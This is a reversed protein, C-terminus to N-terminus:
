GRPSLPRQTEVDSTRAPKESAALHYGFTHIDLRSPSGVATWQYEPPLNSLNPPRYSPHMAAIRTDPRGPATGLFVQSRWEASSVSFGGAAIEAATVTPHKVSFEAGPGWPSVPPETLAAIFARRQADSMGAVPVVVGALAADRRPRDLAAWFRLHRRKGYFWYGGAPPAIWTDDLYWGWHISMGLTQLDTLAAALEADHDLPFAGPRAAREVWPRVIREPVEMPRDWHAYRSRLRVVGYERRWTYHLETALRDLLAAAPQKGSVWAPNVRSRAFSDAVVDLGTAEHLAEAVEGLTPWPPWSRRQWEYANDSAARPPRDPLRLEITRLLAPDDMATAVPPPKRPPLDPSWAGSTWRREGDAERWAILNVHLRSRRDGPRPAGEYTFRESELLAVHADAWVALEKPDNPHRDAPDDSARVLDAVRRPLTGREASLLLTRDARLQRVQASTLAGIVAIGAPAHRHLAARIATAEAELRTREEHALGAGKLATEVEAARVQLEPPPRESLQAVRRTWARIEEWEASDDAERQAQERQAAGADQLEYGGRTRVWRFGFHAAIVAMVESVPRDRLFLTVRDDRVAAGALVPTQARRGIEALAEGLPRDRIAFDVKRELRPDSRLVADAASDTGPTRAFALPQAAGALLLPLLLARM